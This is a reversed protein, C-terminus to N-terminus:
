KFFFLLPLKNILCIYIYIYLLLFLLLGKSQLASAKLNGFRKSLDAVLLKKVLAKANKDFYKPFYVKGWTKSSLIAQGHPIPSALLVRLKTSGWCKPKKNPHTKSTSRKKQTKPSSKTTKNWDTHNKLNSPEIETKGRPTPPSSEPNGPKRILTKEPTKPSAHQICTQAFPSTEGSKSNLSSRVYPDTCRIQCLLGWHGVILRQLLLFLVDGVWGALHGALIKQYIGMPDEDCFPPQGCVM